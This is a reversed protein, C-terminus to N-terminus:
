VNRVGATIRAELAVWEDGAVRAQAEIRAGKQPGCFALGDAGDAYEIGLGMIQRRPLALAQHPERTLGHRVHLQATRETFLRLLAQEM